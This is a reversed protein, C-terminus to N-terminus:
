WCMSFCSGQKQGSRTRSAERLHLGVDVGLDEPVEVNGFLSSTRSLWPVRVAM